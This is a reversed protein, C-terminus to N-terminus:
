FSEPKGNYNQYLRKKRRREKNIKLAGIVAMCAVSDSAFLVPTM